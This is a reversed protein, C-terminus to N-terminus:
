IEDEFLTDLNEDPEHSSLLSTLIAGKSIFGEYSMSVAVLAIV